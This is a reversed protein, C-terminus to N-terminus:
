SVQFGKDEDDKDPVKEATREDEGKEKNPGKFNPYLKRGLVSQSLHSVTSTLASDYSSPMADTLTVAAM